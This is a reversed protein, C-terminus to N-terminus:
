LSAGFDKCDTIDDAPDAWLIFGLLKLPAQKQFSTDNQFQLEIFTATVNLAIRKFTQSGSDANLDFEITTSPKTRGNVFVNLRIPTEEGYGEFYLDIYPFYSSRGKELFPALRSTKFKWQIPFEPGDPEFTDSSGSNFFIDGDTSGLLLSYSYTFHAFVSFAMGADIPNFLVHRMSGWPVHKSIKHSALSTIKVANFELFSFSDEVYNFALASDCEVNQSSISPYVTYIFNDIGTHRHSAIKKRLTFNIKETFGLIKLAIREVSLGNSQIYGTQGLIQTHEDTESTSAPCDAHQSANIKTFIFPLAIDNTPSLSYSSTSFWAILKDRVPSCAVIEENTDPSFEGGYGPTDATFNFPSHQGYDNLFQASWRVSQHWPGDQGGANEITPSLLILRNNFFRLFAATKIQNIGNKLADETIPLVPWFFTKTDIDFCFIPDVANTIAVINKSISHSIHNGIGNFVQSPMASFQIYDTAQNIGSFFNLSVTRTTIDLSANNFTQNHPFGNNYKVSFPQGRNVGHVVLSNPVFEFPIKFSMTAQTVAIPAHNRAKFSNLREGNIFVCASDDNVVILGSDNSNPDEFHILGRLPKNKEPVYSVYIHKDNEPSAINIDLVNNADLTITLTENGSARYFQGSNNQRYTCDDTSVEISNQKFANVNHSISNSSTILFDSVFFSNYYQLGSRNKIVGNSVLINSAETLSDEPAIWPNYYSFLGSKFSSIIFPTPM